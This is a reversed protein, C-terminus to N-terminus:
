RRHGPTAGQMAGVAAKHHPMASEGVLLPVPEAESAGQMAAVAAHDQTRTSRRTTRAAFGILSLFVTKAMEERHAQTAPGQLASSPLAGLDYIPLAGVEAHAAAHVWTTGRAAEEEEQGASEEM